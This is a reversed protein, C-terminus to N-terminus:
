GIQKVPCGSEELPRHISVKEGDDMGSWVVGISYNPTSSRAPKINKEAIHRDVAAGKSIVLANAADSYDASQRFMKKATKVIALVVGLCYDERIRYESLAWTMKLRAKNHKWLNKVTRHLYNALYISMARNQEEGVMIIRRKLKMANYNKYGLLIRCGFERAIGDFLEREWLSFTAKYIADEEAIKNETKVDDININNERAIKLAFALAQAAEHENSSKSLALLKKIKEKINESM